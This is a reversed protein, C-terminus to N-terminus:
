NQCIIEKIAKIVKKQDKAKPVASYVLNEPANEFIDMAKIAIKKDLMKDRFAKALIPTTFLSFSTTTPVIKIGSIKALKEEFKIKHVKFKEVFENAKKTNKLVARACAIAIRNVAFVQSSGESKKFYEIIEIDAFAVGVRVGALGFAKSFGRFVILNKYKKILPLATIGSFEFYAEDIVAIGTFKKLLKEIEKLSFLINGTPNNPSAIFILKTKTTIKALFKNFDLSFDVELPCKKIIGGMLETAAIYAPFTPTPILVEDNEEVFVKAVLEILGDIGNGIFINECDLKEKKAILKRLSLKEPDPYFNIKKLEKRAVQIAQPFIEPNEGFNLRLFNAPTKGWKLLQMDLISKKVLSNLKMAFVKVCDINNIGFLIKFRKLYNLIKVM